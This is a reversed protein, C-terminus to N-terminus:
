TIAIYEGEDEIFRQEPVFTTWNGPVGYYCNSEILLLNGGRKIRFWGMEGWFEGRINSYVYKIRFICIISHYCYFCAGRIEYLGISPGM